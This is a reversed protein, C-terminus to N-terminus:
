NAAPFQAPIRYQGRSIQIVLNNNLNTFELWFIFYFLAPWYYYFLVVRFVIIIIIIFTFGWKATPVIIKWTVVVIVTFHISALCIFSSSVFESVFVIM